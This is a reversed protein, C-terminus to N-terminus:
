GILHMYNDNAQQALRKASQTRLQAAKRVSRALVQPLEQTNVDGLAWRVADMGDTEFLIREDPVLRATSEHVDPGVTFFCGQAIMRELAEDGGSYWHVIVPCPFGEIMRAIECECGKTHLVVGKGQAAADDLQKIFRARQVAMPVSCWVSDLGIEGILAARATFPAMDEETVADAYWPHVGATLTFLPDSGCLTEFQAAQAPNGCSIMTRVGFRRRVALEAADGLHAHADFVIM